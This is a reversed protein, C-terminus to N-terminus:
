PRHGGSRGLGSYVAAAMAGGLAAPTAQPPRAFSGADVVEREAGGTLAAPLGGQRLLRTLEGQLAAGTRLGDSASFGELRLEGIRVEIRRPRM